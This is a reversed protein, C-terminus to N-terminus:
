PANDLPALGVKGNRCCNTSSETPWRIAQCHECCISIQQLMHRGSIVNKESIILLNFNDIISRALNYTTRTRRQISQTQVPIINLEPQSAGDFQYDRVQNNSIENTSQLSNTMMTNEQRIHPPTNPRTRKRAM